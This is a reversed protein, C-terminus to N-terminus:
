ELDALNFQNPDELTSHTVETEEETRWAIENGRQLLKFGLM